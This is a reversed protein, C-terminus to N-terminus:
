PLKREKPESGFVQILPKEQFTRTIEELNDSARRLNEIALRISEQNQGVTQTTAALLGELAVLAEVAKAVLQEVEVQEIKDRAATAAERIERATAPVQSETITARVQVLSTDVEGLTHDLHDSTTRISVLADSLPKKNEQLVAEATQVARDMNALLQELQSLSLDARSLISDVRRQNEPRTLVLLQNLLEDLKASIDTLDGSLQALLNQGADIKGGSPLREAEHSGGELEIYKLGTIGQFNVLAQHDSKIPTGPDVEIRVEVIEVNKPAIRVRDVQGVRVGRMKVPSGEDLGSVSQQFEITYHPRTQWLEPGILAVLTAALLLVAVALFVGLRVKEARTAM